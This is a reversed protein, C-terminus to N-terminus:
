YGPRDNGQSVSGGDSHGPRRDVVRFVGQGGWTSSAQGTVLAEGETVGGVVKRGQLVIPTM